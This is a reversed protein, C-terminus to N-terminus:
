IGGFGIIGTLGGFPLSLLWVIGRYVKSVFISFPGSLFGTALVILVIIFIEREHAMIKYYLRDSIFYGLIRSGDFPPVPILNFIALSINIQAATAFIFYFIQYVILGATTTPFPVFRLQLIWLLTFLICMCLNSFPGAFATLAMDKKPNRFNMMNVPVPKAYGVGVILIMLSGLLDLHRFPNFSLRGMNKATNDGLRYAAYGHALEHVPLCILLLIGATLVIAILSYIDGNRVATWLEMLM